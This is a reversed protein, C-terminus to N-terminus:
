KKGRLHEPVKGLDGALAKQCATCCPRTPVIEVIEEDQSLSNKLKQEAHHRKDKSKDYPMPIMKGDIMIMEYTEKVINGDKDRLIKGDEGKIPRRM